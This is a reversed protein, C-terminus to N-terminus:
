SRTHLIAPFSLCSSASVAVSLVLFAITEHAYCFGLSPFDVQKIVRFDRFMTIDGSLPLCSLPSRPPPVSALLLFSRLTAWPQVPEPRPSDGFIAELKVMHSATTFAGGKEKTLSKPWREKKLLVTECWVSLLFTNWEMSTWLLTWVTTTLMTM